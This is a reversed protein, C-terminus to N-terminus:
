APSRGRGYASRRDLSVVPSSRAVAGVQYGREWWAGFGENIFKTDYSQEVESTRKVFIRALRQAKLGRKGYDFAQFLEYEHARFAKQGHWVRFTLKRWMLGVQTWYQSDWLCTITRKRLQTAWTQVGVPIKTTKGIPWCLHMESLLVMSGDPVALVETWTSVMDAGRLPFNAFVLRGAKMARLGMWALLYTKGAGMDGVVAYLGYDETLESYTSRRTIVRSGLWVVAVFALVLYLVDYEHAMFWQYSM